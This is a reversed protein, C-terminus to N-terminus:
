AGTDTLAANLRLLDFRPDSAMLGLLGLQTLAQRAAQQSAILALATIEASIEADAKAAAILAQGPQSDMLGEMDMGPGVIQLAMQFRGGKAGLLRRAFRDCQGADLRSKIALFVQMDLTAEEMLRAFLLPPIAPPASQEVMVAFGYDAQTDGNFPWLSILAEGDVDLARAFSIFDVQAFLADRRNRQAPTKIPRQVLVRTRRLLGKTQFEFFGALETADEGTATGHGLRALLSAALAKIKPARDGALSELYPIDGPSLGKILCEILRLRADAAEGGAKAALVAVAGAPDRARLKTLAVRRAAPWWDDWNEATLDGDVDRAAGSQAVQAEAWDRWPAYADPVTDDHRSPMWDAPHIAYGRGALLHILDRHQGGDKLAKLCRRALAAHEPPLLPLALQPIDACPQLATAPTPVVLLDLYHGSLALLRLEAEAPEASGLVEKWAAPAVSAAQGGMTWRTMVPDLQDFLAEASV